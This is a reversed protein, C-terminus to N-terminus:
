VRDNGRDGKDEDARQHQHRVSVSMKGDRLSAEFNESLDRPSRKLYSTHFCTVPKRCEIGESTPNCGAHHPSGSDIEAV